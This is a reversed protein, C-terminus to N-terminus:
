ALDNGGGGRWSAFAMHPCLGVSHKKARAGVSPLQASAMIM